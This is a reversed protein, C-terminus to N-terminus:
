RRSGRRPSTSCYCRLISCCRGPLRWCRRGGSLQAAKQARREELRPFMEYVRAIDWKGPRQLPVKLNEEVTLNAFTRRGEPVYGVGLAAIRYPPWARTSQGLMRVDGRQTHIQGM